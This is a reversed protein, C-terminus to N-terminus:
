PQAPLRRAGSRETYGRSWWGMRRGGYRVPGEGRYQQEYTFPELQEVDADVLNPWVPSCQDLPHDASATGALPVFTIYTYTHVMSPDAPPSLPSRVRPVSSPSPLPNIVLPPGLLARDSASGSISRQSQLSATGATTSSSSDNRAIVAPPPPTPYPHSDITM